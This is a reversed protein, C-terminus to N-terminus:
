LEDKKQQELLKKKEENEKRKQAIREKRQRKKEAAEVEAEAILVNIKAVQETPQGNEDYLEGILLGIFPYKEEEAYFDAWSKLNMLQNKDLESIPKAAEEKTFNGTIFPINANSGVFVKYPGKDGYFQDGATVDYVQSMISLWRDSTQNGDHRALEEKTVM